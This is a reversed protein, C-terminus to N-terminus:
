FYVVTKTHLLTPASKLSSPTRQPQTPPEIDLIGHSLIIRFLNLQAITTTFSLGHMTFTIIGEPNNQRCFTDFLQKSNTTIAQEYLDFKSPPLHRRLLAYIQRLSPTNSPHPGTVIDYMRAFAVPNDRFFEDIKHLIAYRKFDLM